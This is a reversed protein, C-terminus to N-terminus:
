RIAQKSVPKLYPKLLMDAAPFTNYTVPQRSNASYNTEKEIQGIKVRQSVMSDSKSDNVLEGVSARKAYECIARKIIVPTTYGIILLPNILDYIPEGYPVYLQNQRPFSLAQPNDPFLTSGLLQYSWRMEFYDTAKILSSQKLLGSLNAWASYARESFYTDAFAVEVLSNSDVKGTGDEYVFAM